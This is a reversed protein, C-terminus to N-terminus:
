GFVHSSISSPVMTNGSISNIMIQSDSELIFNDMELFIAKRIAEHIAVVEMVLVFIDVIVKGM